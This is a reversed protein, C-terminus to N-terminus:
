CIGGFDSASLGNANVIRDIRIEAGNDLQVFSLNEKEFFSTILGMTHQQQDNQDLYIIACPTRSSAFAELQDYFTSNPIKKGKM